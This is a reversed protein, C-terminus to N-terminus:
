KVTGIWTIFLNMEENKDQSITFVSVTSCFEELIKKLEYDIFWQEWEEIELCGLLEKNKDIIVIKGNSKTVRAMERISGRIDISHELAECTYVIDFKNDSFPIDTLSGQKTIILPNGIKNLVNESLDVGYYHNEISILNNLYRGKGCGIDLVNLMQGQEKKEKVILEEIVKYRGDEKDIYNLFMDANKNFISINRYYLADLFYKIAWSIESNPFYTNEENENEESLYSGYWGGSENQLKCAYKFAKDGEEIKGLRFWTLAFQFLGTSCVWDVNCYAPVAGSEKQLLAIKEMALEVIGIEGVDLLGEMIYAYFHSLISFNIIEDYFNSKYYSLIHIAKEVYSTNNLIKGAEILPSLCYLHILESCVGEEGWEEKTPTVLRGSDEMNSLLWNCGKIINNDVFPYINRIAMLGKLIQATDFIYPNKNDTDYWSGDEKQIQCLWKAYSIALTKHGWRILTPIFYGTVEPYPKRKNSNCIIGKGEISNNYIWAIAKNYIGIYDTKEKLKKLLIDKKVEGLFKYNQIQMQELQAKIEDQFQSSVAIIVIKNASNMILKDVSYIIIGDLSKGIKDINNDVIFDVNNKGVIDLTKKAYEGAGFLIYQKM